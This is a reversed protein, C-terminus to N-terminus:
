RSMLKMMTRQMKKHVLQLQYPEGAQVNGVSLAVDDCAGDPQLFVSNPLLLRPKSAACPALARFTAREHELWACGAPPAPPELAACIFDSDQAVREYLKNFLPQLRRLRATLKPPLVRPELCFSRLM